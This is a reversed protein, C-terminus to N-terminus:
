VVLMIDFSVKGNELAETLGEIYAAQSDIVRPLNEESCSKNPSVLVFKEDPRSYLERQITRRSVDLPKGKNETHNLLKCALVDTNMYPHKAATKLLYKQEESGVAVLRKRGSPKKQDVLTGTSKLQHIWRTSANRDKVGVLAHADQVPVGNEINQLVTARLRPSHPKRTDNVTKDPMNDKRNIHRYWKVTPNDMDNAKFPM